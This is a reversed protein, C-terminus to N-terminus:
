RRGRKRCPRHKAPASEKPIVLRMASKKCGGGNQWKEDSAIQPM